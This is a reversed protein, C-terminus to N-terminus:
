EGKPKKAARRREEDRAGSLVNSLAYNGEHCAYEYLREDLRRFPLEGGWSETFSTPDDVTFEYNLTREDVRTIRETVRMKPSAGYFAAAQGPNINTTEIVLTDGVWRGRSDGMYPQITSQAPPGDGMRIIRADHVMETFILVYGPTQVITYNNNYFYNPLMPPGANSGFSMICREGLPRNEPNDFAAYRSFEAVVRAQGAPTRPPVRGNAPRTLLSSRAEGRVVAVHDGPDIFFVNYGGTGGSAADFQPDGLKVGGVPPAARNPDSKQNLSDIRSKRRNEVASVQVPTLVPGLGQIREIPTLTANTWNGELDPKGDSTRPM